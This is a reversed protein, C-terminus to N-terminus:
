LYFFNNLQYNQDSMAKREERNLVVIETVM